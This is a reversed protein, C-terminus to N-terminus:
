DPLKKGCKNCFTFQIDVPAGCYPCFLSDTSSSSTFSSPSSTQQKTNGFRENFPDTEESSDTIDFTSYRNKSTANKFHYVAQVIAIIVFIVGFFAMFGGGISAAVVTWFIGFLGVFISMMGGMM